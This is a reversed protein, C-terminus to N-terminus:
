PKRYHFRNFLPGPNALPSNFSLSNMFGLKEVLKEFLSVTEHGFIFIRNGYHSTETDPHIPTKCGCACVKVLSNKKLLGCHICKGDKWRHYRKAKYVSSSNGASYPNSCPSKTAYHKNRSIGCYICKNNKWRHYYRKTENQFLDLQSPKPCPQSKGSIISDKFLIGCFLCKGNIWKHYHHSTRKQPTNSCPLTAKM